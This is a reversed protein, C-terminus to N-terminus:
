KSSMSMEKTLKMTVVSPLLSVKFERVNNMNIGKLYSAYQQKTNLYLNSRYSTAAITSQM